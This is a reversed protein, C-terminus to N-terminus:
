STKYSIPSPAFVAFSLTKPYIEERPPAIALPANNPEFNPNYPVAIPANVPKTKPKVLANVPYISPTFLRSTLVFTKSSWPM